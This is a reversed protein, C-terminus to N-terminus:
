LLFRLNGTHNLIYVIPIQESAPDRKLFIPRFGTAGGQWVSNEGPVVRTKQKLWTKAPWAGSRGQQPRHTPPFSGTAKEDITYGTAPFLPIEFSAYYTSFSTRVPPLSVRIRLLGKPIRGFYQM